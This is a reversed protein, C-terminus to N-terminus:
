SLYRTYLFFEIKTWSDGGSPPQVLTNVGAYLGADKLKFRTTLQPIVSASWSGDTDYKSWINLIRGTGPDLQERSYWSYDDTDLLALTTQAFTQKGYEFTVMTVMFEKVGKAKEILTVDYEISTFTHTNIYFAVHQKQWGPIESVLNHRINFPAAM